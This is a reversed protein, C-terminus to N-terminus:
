ELLLNLLDVLQCLSVDFLLVISSLLLEVIKLILDLRPGGLVVCLDLHNFFREVLLKSVLNHLELVEDVTLRRLGLCVSVVQLLHIILLQVLDLVRTSVVKRTILLM